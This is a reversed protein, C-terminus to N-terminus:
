AYVAASPPARARAGSREPCDFFAVYEVSGLALPRLPGNWPGTPPLAATDSTEALDLGSAPVDAGPLALAPHAGAGSCDNRYQREADVSREVVYKPASRGDRESASPAEGLAVVAVLWLMARYAIAFLRQTSQRGGTMVWRAAGEQEGASPRTRANIGTAISMANIM